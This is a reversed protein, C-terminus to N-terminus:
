NKLFPCIMGAKSTWTSTCVKRRRWLRTNESATITPKAADLGPLALADEAKYRKLGKYPAKSNETLGEGETIAYGLVNFVEPHSRMANMVMPAHDHGVGIQVVNIRDKM